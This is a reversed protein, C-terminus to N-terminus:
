CAACGGLSAAGLARCGLTASGAVEAAPDVDARATRAGVHSSPATSPLRVAYRAAPSPVDACLRRTGPQQVQRLVYSVIRNNPVLSLMNAAHCVCVCSVCNLLM